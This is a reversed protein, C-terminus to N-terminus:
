ELYEDLLKLKAELEASDIESLEINIDIDVRKEYQAQPSDESKDAKAESKHEAEKSSKEETDSSSEQSPQYLGSTQTESEQIQQQPESEIEDKNTNEAEDNITSHPSISALEEVITELNVSENFQLRTPRGSGSKQEGYGMGDITEFITRVSRKLTSTSIDTFEFETRLINIVEKNEIADKNSFDGIKNYVQDLILIYPKYDSVAERLLDSIVDDENKNYYLEFGESTSTYKDDSHEFFGLKSGYDLTGNINRTSLDIEDKEDLENSSWAGGSEMINLLSILKEPGAYRPLDDAEFKFGSLTIEENNVINKTNESNGLSSDSKNTQNHSESYKTLLDLYELAQISRLVDGLDEESLVDEELSIVDKALERYDEYEGRDILFMSESYIEYKELKQKIEKSNDENSSFGDDYYEILTDTPIYVGSKEKEILDINYWFKLASSAAVNNIGGTAAEKYNVPENKARYREIFNELIQGHKEASANDSALPIESM